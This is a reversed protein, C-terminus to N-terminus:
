GNEIAHSQFIREGLQRVKEALVEEVEIARRNADKMDEEAKFREKRERKNKKKLKAIEEINAANAEELASVQQRLGDRAADAEAAFEQAEVSAEKAQALRMTTKLYASSINDKEAMVSRLKAKSKETADKRAAKRRGHIRKVDWLAILLLLAGLAWM